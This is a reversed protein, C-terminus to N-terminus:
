WAGRHRAGDVGARARSASASPRDESPWGVALTGAARWGEPVGLAGLVAREHEFLGFFCVGLGADIAALQALMAAFGTDVWWFPVDWAGTGTGLGTGAKDPEAYREPWAEPRCLCVVLLPADLLGPWPFDPRRPAPLSVDWYRATQEPGELAVFAWGDTNGASPARLAAAVVREATGAPVPDPRFARTMRRRRLVQDLQM